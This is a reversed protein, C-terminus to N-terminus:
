WSQGTRYRLIRETRRTTMVREEMQSDPNEGDIGMAMKQEGDDTKVGRLFLTDDLVQVKTAKTKHLSPLVNRHLGRSPTTHGSLLHYYIGWCVNFEMALRVPPMHYQIVIASQSVPNAGPNGKGTTSWQQIKDFWWDNM